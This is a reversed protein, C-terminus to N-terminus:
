IRAQHRSIEFRKGRGSQPRLRPRRSLRQLDLATSFSGLGWLALASLRSDRRMQRVAQSDDWDEKERFPDSRTRRRGFIHALGYCHRCLFYCGPWQLKAVRRRCAIGNMVGPCIFYPAYRWLPLGRPRHPRDRDRGAVRRRRQARSLHSERPRGRRSPQHLRGEDMALRRGDLRRAPLGRAAAPERRDSHCSKVMERGSGSPRGSGFGGM